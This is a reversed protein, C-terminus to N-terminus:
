RGGEAHAVIQDIFDNGAQDFIAEVRGDKRILFSKPLSNQLVGFMGRALNSNKDLLTYFSIRHEKLFKRTVVQAKREPRGDKQIPVSVLIVEVGHRRLRAQDAKLQHIEKVCPECWVAFFSILFHTADKQAAYEAFDFFNLDLDYTLMKAPLPQGVVLKGIRELMVSADGGWLPQTLLILIGGSIVLEIRKM